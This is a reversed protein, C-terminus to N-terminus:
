PQFWYRHGSSIVVLLTAAWSQRGGLRAVLRRHLPYLTVALVVSWLMLDMFPQFVKHCWYVLVAIMGVRIMSDVFEQADLSGRVEELLWRYEQM